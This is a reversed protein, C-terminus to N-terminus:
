WMSATPRSCTNSCICLVRKRAPLLTKLATIGRHAHFAQATQALEADIEAQYAAIEAAEVGYMLAEADAPIPLGLASAVAHVNFDILFRTVESLPSTM